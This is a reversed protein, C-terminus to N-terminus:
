GRFLDETHLDRIDEWAAKIEEDTAGTAALAPIMVIRFVRRRFIAARKEAIQRRVRAQRDQKAYWSDPRAPLDLGYRHGLYAVAEAVTGFPGALQMLTVVDGGNECHFCYFLDEKCSFADSNSGHGCIPCMGRWRSGKKKIQGSKERALDAAVTPINLAEKVVEIRRKQLRPTIRVVPSVTSSAPVALLKM